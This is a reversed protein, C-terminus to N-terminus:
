LPAGELAVLRQEHDRLWLVLAAAVRDYAVGPVQEPGGQIVLQDLGLAAMDEALFGLYQGASALAARQAEVVGAGSEIAMAVADRVEGRDRWLKPRLGKVADLSLRQEADHIDTKVTRSSGQYFVKWDASITLPFGGSTAPLGVTLLESAHLRVPGIGGGVYVAGGTPQIFTHQQSTLWINGAGNPKTNYINVDQGYLRINSTNSEVGSNVQTYLGQLRWTGGAKMVLEARGSSNVTTEPGHIVFDNADYGGGAVRKAVIAGSVGLNPNTVKLGASGGWANLTMEVGYGYSDTSRFAGRANVQGTSSDLFFTTTGAPDNAWIGYPSMFVKGNNNPNKAEIYAGYISGGTITKGTIATADLKEATIAGAAIRDATVANAALKDTTVVLAALKDTTVSGATLHRALIAGDVIVSADTMRVVSVHDITYTATPATNRVTVYAAGAVADAPASHGTFTITEWTGATITGAQDAPISFSHWSGDERLFYATAVIASRPISTSTRVTVSMKYMGGPDVPFRTKGELVRGDGYTHSIVYAPQGSRGANPSWTIGAGHTNWGQAGSAFGPDPVLNEGASVVLMDTTIKRARVVDTWLKDIVATGLQASSATLRSVDLLGATGSGIQIQPVITTSLPMSLWMVMVDDWRWMSSMQGAANTRVWLAGSPRGIGDSVTPDNPSVIPIEAKALTDQLQALKETLTVGSEIAAQGINTITTQAANLQTLIVDADVLPATTGTVWESWGSANGSRDVTRSRYQQPQGYPPDDVLASAFLMTGFTGAHGNKEVELRAFDIPMAEGYRGLGDWELRIMGLRVTLVLNSPVPPPEVDSGVVVFFPVSLASWNPSYSPIASVAVWIREGPPLPWYEVTTGPTRTLFVWPSGAVDRRMWLGYGAIEMSTGDTAETVADWQAAIRGVAQGDEAIFASTAVVLGTPAKPTRNDRESPPDTPRTGAGGDAQSGGVIGRMRKTRRIDADVLRDNLVVSGTVAGREDRSLTIQHVRVRESRRDTPGTVWDGPLYDRIPLSRAGPRDLVMRRTYQGRVRAALALDSQVLSMATGQDSVGGQSIYGEWKGWPAPASPNNATWVAGEDGRLLMTSVVGEITEEVPAETVDRGLRLVVTGSVDRALVGDPNYLRLERARTTWDCMGQDTLSSLIQDHDLGLELYLTVVKAWDAGASDKTSTFTKALPVGGRTTNEDMLAAMIGGTTASLFARKGEQHDGKPRIHTTDLLRAKRLLWGYGPMTLTVVDSDDLTDVNRKILVFRCGDPEVWDGSHNVQLAVELGQELGRRLIGGGLAARSYRVTMAPVDNLPLSADLALPQPLFGLRAGNPAYAVLRLDM